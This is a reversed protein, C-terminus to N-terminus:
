WETNKILDKIDLNGLIIVRHNDSSLNPFKPIIHIGVLNNGGTIQVCGVGVLKCTV